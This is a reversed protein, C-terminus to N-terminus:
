EVFLIKFIWYFYVIAACIDLIILTFPFDKFVKLFVLGLFAFIILFVIIGVIWM